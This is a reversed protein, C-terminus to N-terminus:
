PLLLSRGDAARFRVAYVLFSRLPGLRWLWPALLRPDRVRHAIGPEDSLAGLVADPYLGSFFNRDRALKQILGALEHEPVRPLHDLSDSSVLDCVLLGTGTPALLDAMLRLHRSRIARVLDRFGPHRDGGLADTAYGVLQSLLCCSLVVDFKAGLDPLCAEASVQVAQGVDAVSPKRTKWGSVADAIGTLDVPGHLHLGASGTVGQRDAAASLAAPDIDVLHVQDFAQLLRPLELDNCNGAGLAVFRGGPTLERGALILEKVRTRHPAFHRWHTRTSRNFRAQKQSISEVRPPNV